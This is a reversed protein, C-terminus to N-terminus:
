KTNQCSIDIVFLVRLTPTNKTIDFLSNKRVKSLGFNELIASSSSKRALNGMVVLYFVGSFYAERNGKM